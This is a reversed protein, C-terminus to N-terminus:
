RQGCRRFIQETIQDTSPPNEGLGLTHLLEHIILVEAATTNRAATTSFSAACIRIMSNGVATFAAVAGDRECQPSDRDDAFSVRSFLYDTASGSVDELSALLPRGSRDSFDTFIRRCETLELRDAAGFIARRLALRFVADSTHVRPSGVPPDHPPEPGAPGRNIRHAHQFWRERHCRGRGQRIGDPANAESNRCRAIVLRMQRRATTKQPIEAPRAGPSFEWRSRYFRARAGKSM